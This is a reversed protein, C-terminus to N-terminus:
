ISMKPYFIRMFDAANDIKLMEACKESEDVTLAQRGTVIYSAKRQSWGIASAFSSVTGFQEIVKGRLAATNRDM